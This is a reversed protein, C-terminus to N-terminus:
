PPSAKHSLRSATWPGQGGGERRQIRVQRFYGEVTQLVHQKGSVTGLVKCGNIEKLGPERVDCDYRLRCRQAMKQPKEWGM